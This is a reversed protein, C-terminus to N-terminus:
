GLANCGIQSAINPANPFITLKFFVFFLLGWGVKSIAADLKESSFNTYYIPLGRVQEPFSALAFGIGPIFYALLYQSKAHEAFQTEVNCFGVQILIFLYCFLGGCGFVNTLKLHSFLNSESFDIYFRFALYFTPLTLVSLHFVEM